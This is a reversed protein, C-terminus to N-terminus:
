DAACGMSSSATMFSMTITSATRLATPRACLPESACFRVMAEYTRAYAAFTMSGSAVGLEFARMAHESSATTLVVRPPTVNRGAVPSGQHLSEIWTLGARAPHREGALHIDVFAVDVANPSAALAESALAPSSVAAVVHALKSREVLQVLYNRAPWEDELVLVGLSEPM